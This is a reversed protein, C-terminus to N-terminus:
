HDWFSREFPLAGVRAEVTYGLGRLEEVVVDVLRPLSAQVEDTLGLAMEMSKPEVGFLVMNGPLEDTLQAAALLDSLGLQHPTIRIRFTAPVDEGEVRVVTGPPRGSKVADIIILHDKECIYSLLEIGSTGGDLVEVEEPLHYRRGLEEVARVGVGEDMLLVNGIGLVLVSM